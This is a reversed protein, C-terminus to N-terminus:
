QRAAVYDTDGNTYILKDKEFRVFSWFSRDFFKGRDIPSLPIIYGTALNVMSLYDSHPEIKVLANKVFYDPGFRFSGAYKALENESLKIPKPVPRAVPENFLIASLDEAIISPAALYLNSLVIVAADDDIFREFHAKFGPSSGNVYVSRHGFRQRRFWFMGVKRNEHEFGYSDILTAPKLLKGNQLAHHFLLLDDATSYVSGNGTKSTWDLYPANEFATAGIPSYGHVLNLIIAAADDHHATNMMGSPQFIENNLVSGYSQGAVKETIFALIHYNSNSYFYQTGPESQLPKKKVREVLAATTQPFRSWESYDPDASADALGSYHTLLEEITIKDGSPFDPVFKSLHDSLSLKGQEVLRLVAVATIPKSLSAIQFKSGTSNPVNLERDAMGFAQKFIKDNGKSVLVVGSFLGADAYERVRSAMRQRMTEAQTLTACFVLGLFGYRM